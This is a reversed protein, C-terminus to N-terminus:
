QPVDCCIGSVELRSSQRSQSLIFGSREGERRIRSGHKDYAAIRALYAAVVQEVHLRGSAYAAELEGITAVTVDIVECRASVPWSFAILAATLARGSRRRAKRKALLIAIESQM